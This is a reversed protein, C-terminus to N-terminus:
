KQFVRVYDIVMRQPLVSDDPRGGLSGGVALNMLIFFEERFEHLEKPRISLEHYPKRAGDLYWRIKSKDWVISFVHFEDALEGKELTTNGGYSANSGPSPTDHWWHATGLVKKENKGTKEVIDIEGCRPWEVAPHNEGLMWLAPWPGRGRPLKARIDVRGYKFFRKGQTNIRGSTYNRGDIQEARAEITLFGNAVTVNEKRYTQSEHNGWGCLEPCGDGTEYSWDATDLADGDFEDSWVLDYGRYSMPSQYGGTGTDAGTLAPLGALLM